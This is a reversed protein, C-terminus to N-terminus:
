RLEPLAEQAVGPVAVAAGAGVGDVLGHVLAAYLGGQALLEEHSGSEAIAGQEMVLIKDFDIVTVLRHAICLLTSGEFAERLIQQVAEDTAM